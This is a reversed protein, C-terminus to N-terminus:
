NVHQAILFSISAIYNYIKGQWFGSKTYGRTDKSLEFNVKQGPYYITDNNISYSLDFYTTKGSHKKSTVNATLYFLFGVILIVSHSNMTFTRFM